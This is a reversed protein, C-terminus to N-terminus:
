VSPEKPESTSSADEDPGRRGSPLARPRDTRATLERPSAVGSSPEPDLGRPEDAPWADSAANAEHEHAHQESVFRLQRWRGLLEYMEQAPQDLGCDILLTWLASIAENRGIDTSIPRFEELVYIQTLIELAMSMRGLHWSFDDVRSGDARVYEKLTDTPHAIFAM